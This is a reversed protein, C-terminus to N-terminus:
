LSWGSKSAFRARNKSVRLKVNSMSALELSAASKTTPVNSLSTRVWSAFSRLVLQTYTTYDTHQSCHTFTILLFFRAGQRFIKVNIGQKLITPRCNNKSWQTQEIFPTMTRTTGTHPSTHHANITAKSSKHPRGTLRHSSAPRPTCAAAEGRHVPESATHGERAATRHLDEVEAGTRERGGELINDSFIPRAEAMDPSPRHLCAGM